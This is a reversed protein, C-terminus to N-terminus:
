PHILMNRITDNKCRSIDITPEIQVLWKAVDVNNHQCAFEFESQINAYNIKGRSISYLWKLLDLNNCYKAENIASQNVKMTEFMWKAV